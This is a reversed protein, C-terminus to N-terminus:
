REEPSKREPKAEQPSRNILGLRKRKAYLSARNVGLIGCAEDLNKTTSIAMEIQEKTLPKKEKSHHLRCHCARCLLEQESHDQPDLNVHHTIIQFSNGIKGCCSCKLGEEKILESRMGGHRNKDKYKADAKKKVAYKAKRRCSVSCFKIRQTIPQFIDGCQKCRKEQLVIPVRKGGILATIIKM